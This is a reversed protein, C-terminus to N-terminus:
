GLTTFSHMLDVERMFAYKGAYDFQLIAGCDFTAHDAVITNETCGLSQIAPQGQMFNHDLHRTPCRDDIRIV